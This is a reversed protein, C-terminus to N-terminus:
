SILEKQRKALLELQNLSNVIKEVDTMIDKPFELEYDVKVLELSHLYKNLQKTFAFTNLVIERDKASSDFRELIECVGAIRQNYDTRSLFDIRDSFGKETYEDEMEIRGLIELAEGHSLPKDYHSFDYICKQGNEAANRSYTNDAIKVNEGLSSTSSDSAQITIASNCSTCKVRRGIWDDQARLEQGCHPCKFIFSMTSEENNACFFLTEGRSSSHGAVALVFARFSVSM